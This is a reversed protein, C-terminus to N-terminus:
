NATRGGEWGLLGTAIVFAGVDAAVEVPGFGVEPSYARRSFPTPEEHGLPISATGLCSHM